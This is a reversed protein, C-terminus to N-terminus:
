NTARPHCLIWEKIQQEENELRGMVVEYEAQEILEQMWRGPKREPFWELLAHGNLALESRSRIPLRKRIENIEKESLSTKYITEILRIFPRDLSEDLQYVLFNTLSDKGYANVAKLLQLAEAKEKNSGSWSKIWKTVSIGPEYHVFLAILQAFSVFPKEAKNLITAYAEHEDFLPLENLLQTEIVYRKASPFHDGKILKTMEDKLREIAVRNIETKLESIANLTTEEITFGLQSSFRVARLMRLPDEMFRDYPDLVARIVKKELDEKGGFLDVINGEKDMALANITFDRFALDEEITDAFVFNGDEDKKRFTTVEISLKNKRVIVTGHELGFPIIRTFIRKVDDPTANTAVDYDHVNRDLLLDRVAGGVVYAHFGANELQTLLEFVAKDIKAM